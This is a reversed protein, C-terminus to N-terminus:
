DTLGHFYRNLEQSLWSGTESYIRGPISFISKIEFGILVVFYKRFCLAIPLLGVV